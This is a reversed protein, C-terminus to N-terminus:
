LCVLRVGGLRWRCGCLRVGCHMTKTAHTGSCALLAVTQLNTKRSRGAHAALWHTFDLLVRTMPHLPTPQPWHCRRGDRPRTRQAEQRCPERRSLFAREASREAQLPVPPWEEVGRSGGHILKSRRFVVGVPIRHSHLTSPQNVTNCQWCRIKPWDISRCQCTQAISITVSQQGSNSVGDLASWQLCRSSQQLM